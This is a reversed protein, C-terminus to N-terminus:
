LLGPSWITGSSFAPPRRSWSNSAMSRWSNMSFILPRAFCDLWCKVEGPESVRWKAIRGIALLYRRDNADCGQRISELKQDLEKQNHLLPVIVHDLLPGNALDFRRIQQLLRKGVGQWELQISVNPDYLNLDACDWAFLLFGALSTRAQSVASRGLKRGTSAGIPGKPALSHFQLGLSCSFRDGVEYIASVLRQAKTIRSQHEAPQYDDCEPAHKAGSGRHRALYLVGKRCYAHVPARSSNCMCWFPKGSEYAHRVVQRGVPDEQLYTISYSHGDLELIQTM